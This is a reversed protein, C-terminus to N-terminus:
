ELWQLWDENEALRFIRRVKLAVALLAADECLLVRTPDIQGHRSPKLSNPGRSIAIDCEIKCM